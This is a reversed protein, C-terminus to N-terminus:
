WGVLDDPIHRNSAENACVYWLDGINPVTTTNNLIPNLSYTSGDLPCTRSFDILASAVVDSHVYTDGPVLEYFNAYARIGRQFQRLNILCNSRSSGSKWATTGIFLTGILALLM